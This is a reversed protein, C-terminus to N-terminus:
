RAAVVSGLLKAVRQMEDLRHKFVDRMGIMGILQGNEVVPLHRICRQRMVKVIDSLKDDPACTIVNKTMLASVPLLHLEARYLALGYAIDRESIIGEITRGDQSVIMAGIQAQQLRRSLDAITAAPEITLVGPTKTELIDAVTQVRREM